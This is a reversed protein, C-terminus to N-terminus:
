GFHFTYTFGGQQFGQQFGPHGWGGGQQENLDDGRDYAARKEEDNLVEYAEAVEKFREESEAKEKSSHVKDPHYQKALNRYAKRIESSGAHQNVGLIKYYDKRKSLKLQREADRYLQHM